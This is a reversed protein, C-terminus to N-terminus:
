KILEVIVPSKAPVIITDLNEFLKRTLVSRGKTYGKLNEEFRSLDVERDKEANNLMVM